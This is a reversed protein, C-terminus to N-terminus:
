KQSDWTKVIVGNRIAYDSEEFGNKLDRHNLAVRYGNNCAVGLTHHYGSMFLNELDENKIAMTEEGMYNECKDCSCTKKCKNFM